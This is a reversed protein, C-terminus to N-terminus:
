PAMVVPLYIRYGSELWGFQYHVPLMTEQLLLTDDSNTMRIRIADVVLPDVNITFFGSGSGSGVPYIGSSHASYGPALDGDKMPRAYIRVGGIMSTSYDFTLDVNEGLDLVNPTQPTLELNYVRHTGAAVDYHVPLFEEFLLISQDANTMRVRLQDVIVDGTTIRFFGTGSGSPAPYVPSGNVAYHPTPEGDTFPLTFIRVGGPEDTIYDFTIDVQDNNRLINPTAPSFAVNYVPDDANTFAFHVPLFTEFLLESLDANFMQLRIQDVVVNGSNIRFFGSGSGSGTPHLPSAHASSGPSLAGDSFPRIFIRVGGAEVTQYDFDVTVNQGVRVFNPNGPDLRINKILNDSATIEDPEAAATRPSFVLVLFVSVLALCLGSWFLSKRLKAM